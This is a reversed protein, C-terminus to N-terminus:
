VNIYTYDLTNKGLVFVPAEDNTDLITIELTTTVNNPPTGGDSATVQYFVDNADCMVSSSPCSVTVVYPGPFLERDFQGETRVIGTTPGIVFTGNASAIPPIPGQVDSVTYMVRGFEGSDADTATLRIVSFDPPTDEFISANFDQRSFMPGNDNLDKLVFVFM